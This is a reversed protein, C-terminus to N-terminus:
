VALMIIMPILQVGGRGDTSEFFYKRMFDDTFVRPIDKGPQPLTKITVAVNAIGRFISMTGLTVIFPHLQLLTVLLGNILGCVLGIAPGGVGAVPLVKWAPADFDMKQLVGALGLASLAYISGVSIDIGGAIIVCTVGVAMIAYVAMY